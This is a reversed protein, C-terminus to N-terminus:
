EPELRLFSHNPTGHTQEELKDPFAAAVEADDDDQDYQNLSNTLNLGLFRNM